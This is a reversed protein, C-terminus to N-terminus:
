ANSVCRPSSPSTRNHLQRLHLDVIARWGVLQGLDFVSQWRQEKGAGLRPGESAETVVDCCDRRVDCAMVPM